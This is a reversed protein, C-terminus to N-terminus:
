GRPLDRIAVAVAMWADDPDADRLALLPPWVPLRSRRREEVLRDVEDATPLRDGKLLNCRRHAMVCNAVDDVGGYAKPVLHDVTAGRGLPGGCHFCRWGQAALLRDPDFPKM